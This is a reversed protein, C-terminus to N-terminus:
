IGVRGGARCRRVSLCGFIIEVAAWWMEGGVAARVRAAVRGQWGVSSVPRQCWWGWRTRGGGARVARGAIVRLVLWRAGGGRQTWGGGPWGGAGAGPWSQNYLIFSYLNVSEVLIFYYLIVSEALVLVQGAM